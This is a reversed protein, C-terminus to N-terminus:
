ATEASEMGSYCLTKVRPAAVRSISSGLSVLIADGPRHGTAWTWSRSGFRLGTNDSGRNGSEM